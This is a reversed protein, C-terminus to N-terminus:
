CGAPCPSIASMISAWASSQEACPSSKQARGFFRRTQWRCCQAALSKDQSLLDTVKERRAKGPSSCYLCHALVAPIAPIQHLAMSGHLLATKTATAATM